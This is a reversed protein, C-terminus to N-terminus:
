HQIGKQVPLRGLAGDWMGHLMGRVSEGQNQISGGRFSLVVDPLAAPPARGAFNLTAAAPEREFSFARAPLPEPVRPGMSALGCFLSDLACPGDCLEAATRGCTCSSGSEAVNLM